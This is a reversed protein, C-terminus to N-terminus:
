DVAVPTFGMEELIAAGGQVSVVYEAFKEAKRSQNSCTLIGIGVKGIAPMLEPAEVIEINTYQKAVTDWLIGADVSAIEVDGAM